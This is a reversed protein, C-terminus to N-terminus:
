KNCWKALPLIPVVMSATFIVRLSPEVQRFAPPLTIIASVQRGGKRSLTSLIKKEMRLTKKNKVFCDSTKRKEASVSVRIKVSHPYLSMLVQFSELSSSFGCFHTRIEMPKGARLIGLHIFGELLVIKSALVQPKM